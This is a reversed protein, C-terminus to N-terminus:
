PRTERVWEPRPMPELEPRSVPISRAQPTARARVPMTEANWYAGQKIGHRTDADYAVDMANFKELIATATRNVEAALRGCDVARLPLIAERIADAARTGHETHGREHLRAADLFGEWRAALEPTAGAGSWRPLTTRQIVYLRLNKARCVNRVPQDYDYKWRVHWIAEAFYDKGVNRAQRRLDDLIAAATTGSVEYYVDQADVHIDGAQGTGAAGALLLCAVLRRV